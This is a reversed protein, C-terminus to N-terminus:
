KVKETVCVGCEGKMGMWCNYTNDYVELCTPQLSNECRGCLIDEPNTGECRSTCAPCIYICGGCRRCEDSTKDFPTIIKLSNGRNAYGLANAMMQEECVRVCLGCYICNDWKASFRVQKLGMKAALDQLVKSTPCRAILLELVMKRANIVRKSATQVVLGEEMPYTCSSVLKTNVGEGIEVVCLRCGGWPTLGDNHCITPIELGFFRAAELITWGQPADFNAGDITIKM